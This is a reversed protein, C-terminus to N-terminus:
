SPSRIIRVHDSIGAALDGNSNIVGGAIVGSAEISGTVKQIRRGCKGPLGWKTWPCKGKLTDMQTNELLM